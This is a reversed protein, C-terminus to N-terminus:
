EISTIFYLINYGTSWDVEGYHTSQAINEFKEDQLQWTFNIFKHVRLCSRIYLQLKNLYEIFM